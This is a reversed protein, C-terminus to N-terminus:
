GNIEGGGIKGRLADLRALLRLWEFDLRARQLRVESIRVMADGLDAAVEMEYRARSRDFYHESYRDQAELQQRKAALTDRQLWLDVLSEQLELEARALEATARQLEARAAAQEADSVGGDYLPMRFVLAARLPDNSGTERRYERAEFEGSLRPGYKGGAADIQREAADRAARLAQLRPNNALVEVTLEELGPLDQWPPVEPYVLAASLQGPRNLALSLRHRSARQRVESQYRKVRVAEYETQLALVEIESLQGRSQRERGRDFSVYATAMDENDRDYELDALLVDLYADLIQLHRRQRTGMFRWQQEAVQLEAAAERAQGHGSDWLLKSVVVGIDSDDSSQDFAIRSPDVWQLRGDLEVQLGQEAAVLERGARARQLAADQLALDPHDANSLSLAFPLTLPEPLAEEAWGAGAALGGIVVLAASLQRM